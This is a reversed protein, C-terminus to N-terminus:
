SLLLNYNRRMYINENLYNIGLGRCVNVSVIFHYRRRNILNTILSHSHSHMQFKISHIKTQNKKKIRDDYKNSLSSQRDM